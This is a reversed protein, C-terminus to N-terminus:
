EVGFHTWCIYTFGFVFLTSALHYNMEYFTQNVSAKGKLKLLKFLAVGLCQRFLRFNNKIRHKGMFSQHNDGQQVRKNLQVIQNRYAKGNEM